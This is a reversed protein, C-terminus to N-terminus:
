LESVKIFKVCHELVDNIFVHQEKALEKVKEMLEPDFTTKFQIRDKKLEKTIFIRKQELLNKIGNEFLINRHVGHTAATMEILDLTEKSINTRFVVRQNTPLPVTKGNEIVWRHDENKDEVVYPNKAHQTMFVRKHVLFDESNTNEYIKDALKLIEQKGKVWIRYIKRDSLQSIQSNLGWSQFVSLLEKAFGNSASTIHMVYGDRSVWGDGDIVGRVFSPLFEEPVNPFPVNFSKRPGIGLKDLDIKMEKSNLILTPTQMTPGFPALMYDAEMYQAISRLIGEDKQSFSISHVKSSVNGDTIFLGLVWAMEHSWTKFFDENVAHKRPRGSSQERNAQLGHKHVVNLIARSTLGIKAEMEKYSMGSKYMRIIEDDTVGPYRPMDSGGISM